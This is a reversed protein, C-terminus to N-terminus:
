MYMFPLLQVPNLILSDTSQTPIVVGGNAWIFDCWLVASIQLIKCVAHVVFEIHHMYMHSVYMHTHM